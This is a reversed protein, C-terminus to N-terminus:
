FNLGKLIRSLTSKFSAHIVRCCVKELIYSSSSSNKENKKWIYEEELSARLLVASKHGESHPLVSICHPPCSARGQHTCRESGWWWWWHGGWPLHVGCADQGGRRSVPGRQLKGCPVNIFIEQFLGSFFFARKKVARDSTENWVAWHLKAKSLVLNKEGWKFSKM